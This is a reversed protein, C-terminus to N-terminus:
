GSRMASNSKRGSRPMPSAMSRPLAVAAVEAWASWPRRQVRASSVWWRYIFRSVAAPGTFSLPCAAVAPRWRLWSASGRPKEASTRRRLGFSRSLSWMRLPGSQLTCTPCPESMQLSLRSTAECQGTRGTAPRGAGRGSSGSQCRGNCLLLEWFGAALSRRLPLGALCRIFPLVMSLLMFVLVFQYSPGNFYLMEAFLGAAHLRLEKRPSVSALAFGIGGMWFGAGVGAARVLFKGAAAALLAALDLYISVFNMGFAVEPNFCVGEVAGVGFAGAVLVHDVATGYFHHNLCHEDAAQALVVLRHRLLGVLNRSSGEVQRIASFTCGFFLM